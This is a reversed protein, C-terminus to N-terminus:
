CARPLQPATDQRELRCCTTLRPSVAVLYVGLPKVTCQLAAHAQLPSCSSIVDEQLSPLVMELVYGRLVSGGAANLLPCQRLGVFLGAEGVLVNLMICADGPDSCCRSAISGADSTAVERLPQQIQRGTTLSAKLIPSLLLHKSSM